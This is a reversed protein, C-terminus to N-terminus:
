QFLDVLDGTLFMTASRHYFGRKALKDIAFRLRRSRFGYGFRFRGNRALPLLMSAALFIPLQSM